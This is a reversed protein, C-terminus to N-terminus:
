VNIGMPHFPRAWLLRSKAKSHCFSEWQIRRLFLLLGPFPIAEANHASPTLRAQISLCGKWWMQVVILLLSTLREHCSAATPAWHLSSINLTKDMSIWFAWVSRKYRQLKYRIYNETEETTRLSTVSFLLTITMNAIYCIVENNLNALDESWSQWLKRMFNHTHTFIHLIFYIELVREDRLCHRVYSKTETDRKWILILM